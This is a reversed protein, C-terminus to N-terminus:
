DFYAFIIQDIVLHYLLKIDELPDNKQLIKKGSEILKRLYSISFLFLIKINGESFLKWESVRNHIYCVKTVSNSDKPDPKELRKGKFKREKYRPDAAKRKAILKEKTEKKEPTM